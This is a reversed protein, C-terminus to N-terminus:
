RGEGLISKRLKDPHHQRIAKRWERPPIPNRDQWLGLKRVRAQHELAQYFENGPTKERSWWAWGEKLILSNLRGGDPLIVNAVTRGKDDVSVEELLVLKEQALSETFERSEKGFRQGINPADIGFLRVTEIAGTEVLTVKLLDGREVAVVFARSMEGAGLSPAPLSCLTILSAAVLALSKTM